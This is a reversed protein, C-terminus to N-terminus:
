RMTRLYAILDEIERSELGYQFGPMRPTGKRIIERARAETEASKVFGNVPPGFPKTDASRGLPPLHCISCRQVFMKKGALETPSLAASSSSKQAAPLFTTLTIAFGIGFVIRAISSRIM